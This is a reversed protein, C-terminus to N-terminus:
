RPIRRQTQQRSPNFYGAGRRLRWADPRFKVQEPHVDMILLATPYQGAYCVPFLGSDASVGYANKGEVEFQLGEGRPRNNLVM